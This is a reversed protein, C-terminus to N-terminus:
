RSEIGVYIAQAIPAYEDESITERAVEGGDADLEVREVRSAYGPQADIVPVREDTYTAYIGESDRVYVPEEPAPIEETTTELAYLASLPAGILQVELMPADGGEGYARATVFLPTKGDNRLVLDLGQDSVAAEQGAQAYAVPRVAASREAVTVDALLAAQYLATATQCVGGGIGQAGDGYAPEAAEVYGRASTRAGVAENFSLTEGPNVTLGNLAQAALAANVYADKDKLLPLVVRARLVTAAQLDEAYVDPALEQAEARVSASTHTELATLIRERLPEPNFLLGTKEQTFRFPASSGPVFAVSADEPECDVDAKIMALLEEAAEMDYRAVLQADQPERRLALMDVLTSVMNGRGRQWLAGLTADEDVRLNMDKATLLYSTGQAEVEFRWSALEEDALQHLITVGDQWSFGTLAHGELSTGPLFADRYPATTAYLWLTGAGVCAALAFIALSVLTAAGVRRKKRKKKPNKPGTKPPRSNRQARGKPPKYGAQTMIPM